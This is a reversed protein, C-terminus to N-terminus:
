EGGTKERAISKRLRANARVANLLADTGLKIARAHLTPNIIKAPIGDKCIRAADLMETAIQFQAEEVSLDSYDNKPFFRKM